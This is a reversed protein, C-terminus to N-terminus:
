KRKRGINTGRKACYLAIEYLIFLVCYFLKFNKDLIKHDM